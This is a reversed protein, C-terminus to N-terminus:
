DICTSGADPSLGGEEVQEGRCLAVSVGEPRLVGEDLFAELEIDRFVSAPGGDVSEHERGLHDAVARPEGTCAGDLGELEGAGFGVYRLPNEAKQLGRGGGGGVGARVFCGEAGGQM